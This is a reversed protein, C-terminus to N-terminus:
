SWTITMRPLSRGFRQRWWRRLRQLGYTDQILTAADRYSTDVELIHQFNQRAAVWQNRDLADQAPQYYSECYVEKARDYFVSGTDALLPQVTQRAMEWQRNEVYFRGLQCVNTFLAGYESYVTRFATAAQEQQVQSTWSPDSVLEIATVNVVGTLMPVVPTLNSLGSAELLTRAENELTQVSELMPLLNVQEAETASRDAQQVQSLEAQHAQDESELKSLAETREDDIQQWARTHVEKATEYSQITDALMRQLAQPNLRDSKQQNQETM